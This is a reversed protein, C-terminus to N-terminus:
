FKFSLQLHATPKLLDICHIDLKASHSGLLQLAYIESLGAQSPYALAVQHIHYRNAYSSLQYLDAQSVGLKADPGNLLKWKADIILHVKGNRDILSIDPRTQFVKRDVDERYALYRRPAQERLSLGAKRALPRLSAALWREFLLNMDFLISLLSHKGATVDPNEADIFLRCWALIDAYRQNARDLTLRDLSQRDIRQDSIDDHQMLLETVAKKSRDSRCKPLLLRLTFKVAQNLLIDDTLEDFQCYLREQHNLNQRLQQNILLKGKIVGLNEERQQYDRPKGMLVQERVLLCFEQIFIDLLTHKQTQIGAGAGRHVKMLGAKRLMKVLVERCAGPDSEKGHIKPLIELTLGGLQVVGCFQRWRVCQHGWRFADAPVGDAADLLKAQAHTLAFEGPARTARVPIRQHEICTLVEM